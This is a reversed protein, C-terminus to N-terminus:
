RKKAEHDERGRTVRVLKNNDAPLSWPIDEEEIGQTQIVALAKYKFRKICIIQVDKIRRCIYKVERKNINALLNWITLYTMNSSLREEEEYEDKYPEERNIGEKVKEKRFSPTHKGKDQWEKKYDKPEEKKREKKEKDEPMMKYWNSEKRNIRQIAEDRGYNCDFVVEVWLNGRKFVENIDKVHTNDKLSWRIFKIREEKTERLVKYAPINAILSNNQNCNRRSPAWISQELATGVIDIEEETEQKRRKQREREEELTNQRSQKGDMEIDEQEIINRQKKTEQKQTSPEDTLKNNREASVERLEERQLTNTEEQKETNGIKEEINRKREETGTTLDRNEININLKKEPQEKEAKELIERTLRLLAVENPDQNTLLAIIKDERDPITYTKSAENFFIKNHVSNMAWYARKIYLAQLSERYELLLNKNM